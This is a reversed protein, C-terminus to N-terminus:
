IEIGARHLHTKLDGELQNWDEFRLKSNATFEGM